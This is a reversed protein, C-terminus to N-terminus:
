SREAPPRHVCDAISSDLSLEVEVETTLRETVDFGLNDYVTIARQNEAAVLLALTEYDKEDAYAVLQKISETRIGKNQYDDHVFVVFKAEDDNM